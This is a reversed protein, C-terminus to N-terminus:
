LAREMWKWLEAQDLGVEGLLHAAGGTESSLLGRLLHIPEIRERRRLQAEATAVRLAELAGEDIPLEREPLTDQDPLLRHGILARLKPLDPRGGLLYEALRGGDARLLGILLNETTLSPHGQRLADDAALRVIRTTRDSAPPPSPRKAYSDGLIEQLTGAGCIELMRPIPGKEPDHTNRALFRVFDRASRPEPWSWVRDLDAGRSLLYELLPITGNGVATMLLPVAQPAHDVPLGGELLADMAGWRGTWSAVQFAEWMIELDDAEAHPPLGGVEWGMAMPDPRDLRAEPRVRGKGALFSRVGKVDGLGAAIWLARRPTVREAILDVCEADRYRGLAHELITIGNPPVWNPDAGRELNWRVAEPTSEFPWGLLKENLERQIDVGRSQLLDTVRRAEVSGGGLREFTLAMAGLTERWEREVPTPTLLEPHEDLIAALAAADHARISAWALGLPSGTREWASRAMHAASARTAEILEEWSARRERRAVVLRADDETIPSSLIEAISCEFFRPVFHSLERAVVPDGRSHRQIRAQAAHELWERSGEGSGSRPGSRHRELEQFYEVLRPWSAFGYERAIVHQADALKLKEPSRDGLAVPHAERVRRLADPDGRQIRKLLSKAEKREYELGPAAPLSRVSM